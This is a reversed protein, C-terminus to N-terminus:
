YRPKLCGHGSEYLHCLGCHGDCQGTKLINRITQFARRNDDLEKYLKLIKDVADDYKKRLGM